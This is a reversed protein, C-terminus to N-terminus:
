YRINKKPPGAFIENSFFGVEWKILKIVPYCIVVNVQQNEKRNM